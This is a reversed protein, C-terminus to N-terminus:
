KDFNITSIKNKDDIVVKKALSGKSSYFYEEKLVVDGRKYGRFIKVREKDDYVAEYYEYNKFVEEYNKEITIDSVNDKTTYDEAFYSIGPKIREPRAESSSFFALVLFISLLSIRIKNM